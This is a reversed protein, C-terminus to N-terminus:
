WKFNLKYNISIEICIVHFAINSTHKFKKLFLETNNFHYSQIKMNVFVIRSVKKISTYIINQNFCYIWM